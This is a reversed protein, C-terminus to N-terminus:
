VTWSVAALMRRSNPTSSVAIMMAPREPLANVAWIPVICTLSSISAIRVRPRSGTSTSTSGRRKPEHQRQRHEGEEGIQHPSRPPQRIAHPTSPMVIGCNKRSYCGRDASLVNQIPMILAGNERRDDRRDAAVFAKLHDRLASLTPRRVVSDTTSNSGERSRSRHRKEIKKEMTPIQGHRIMRAFRDNAHAAEDVPEAGLRDM